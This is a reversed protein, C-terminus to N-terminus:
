HMQYTAINFEIDARIERNNNYNLCCLWKANQLLLDKLPRYCLWWIQYLKNILIM